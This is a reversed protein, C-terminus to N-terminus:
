HVLRAPPNERGTVQVCGGGHVRMQHVGDHFECQGSHTDRCRHDIGDFSRPETADLRSSRRAKVLPVPEERQRGFIFRDCTPADVRVIRLELACHGVTEM